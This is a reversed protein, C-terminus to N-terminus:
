KVIEDGIQLTLRNDGYLLTVSGDNIETLKYASDAIRDGERVLYEQGQYIFAARKSTGQGTISKLSIVNAPDVTSGSGANGVGNAGSDNASNITATNGTNGNIGIAGEISQAAMTNGALGPINATESSEIQPKFPDRYKYINIFITDTDVAATETSQTNIVPQPSSTQEPVQTGGTSSNGTVPIVTNEPQPFAFTVILLVSLLLVLLILGAAVGRGKSAAFLGKMKEFGNSSVSNSAM